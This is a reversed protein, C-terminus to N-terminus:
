SGAPEHVLLAVVADDRAGLLDCGAPVRRERPEASQDGGMECGVLGLAVVDLDEDVLPAIQGVGAAAADAALAAADLAAELVHDSGADLIPANAAVGVHAQG